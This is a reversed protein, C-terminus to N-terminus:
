KDEDSSLPSERLFDTAWNGITEFIPILADASETLSYEVHPPIENFQKRTVLGLRELEKLTETLMTNSIGSIAKRLQGFRLTGGQVILEYLVRTKWKGEFLVLGKKVPCNKTDTAM